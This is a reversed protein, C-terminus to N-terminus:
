LDGRLELLRDHREPISGRKSQVITRPASLCGDRRGRTDDRFARLAQGHDMFVPHRLRAERSELKSILRAHTGTKPQASVPIVDM